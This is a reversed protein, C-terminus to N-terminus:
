FGLIRDVAIGDKFMVMTPIVRIGLKEVFFPAKEANITM